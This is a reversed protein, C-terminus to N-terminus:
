PVRLVHVRSVTRVKYVRRGRLVRDMVSGHRDMASGHAAVRLVQARRVTRYFWLEQIPKRLVRKAGLM